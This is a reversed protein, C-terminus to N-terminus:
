WTHFIAEKKQRKQMQTLHLTFVSVKQSLYPEILLGTIWVMVFWMYIVVNTISLIFVRFLVALQEQKHDRAIHICKEFYFSSFSFVDSQLLTRCGQWTNGSTSHNYEEENTLWVSTCCCQSAFAKWTDRIAETSTNLM